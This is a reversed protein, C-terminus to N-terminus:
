RAKSDQETSLYIEGRKKNLFVFTNIGLSNLEEVKLSKGHTKQWKRRISWWFGKNLYAAIYPHAQIIITKEETLSLQEEINELFSIAPGIKGTGMCTPCGENVEIDMVPRVRQRTIQMLGFKSLPLINHKARDRSMEERMADYLGQRHEANNMDIFDVIIIGGMDRLRLQHAIEVAAAMNTDWANSAQDKAKSRNGSNVDIVHCAETHEIVLYGKKGFSVTKGFGKKLQQNVNFREFIPTNNKVLKVVGEREPAITKIYDKLDEYVEADNVYVNQFSTNLLDRVVATTRNIESLILKPKKGATLTEFANEWKRVLGRFEKDLVEAKKGEAVTRVIVGYNRPKISQLLKKLRNKEEQSEIKQSISVKNSFPILVLHRGAISIESTLRPGKTSIPEKAIQVLIRQGESLTTSIQGEKSIEQELNMASVKPAKKRKEELVLRLFKNLTEFQAGLDFYHLFADKEYGVDVFSANLAPMLKRVKALYIDGVAFQQGKDEVILEVLRKDKLLAISIQDASVDIVLENSVAM